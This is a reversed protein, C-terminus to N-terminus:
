LWYEKVIRKKEELSLNLKEAWDNFSYRKNYLYYEIMRIRGSEYYMVAAPGNTRHYENNIFFEEWMLSGNRYYSIVAPGNERHRRGNIYYNEQMIQGNDHYDTKAPGNPNHLRGSSNEWTVAYITNTGSYYVTSKTLDGIQEIKKNNLRYGNDFKEYKFMKGVFPDRESLSIMFEDSLPKDKEDMYQDSEHHIQYKRNNKKDVIIILDYSYLHFKNEKDDTKATCWRTNHGFYCASTKDKVHVILFENTNDLIDYDGKDGDKPFLLPIETVDTKYSDLVEELDEIKNINRHETNLLRKNFIQWYEKLAPRIRSPIDEFRNIDGKAYRLAIWTVYKNNQTPDADDMIQLLEEDSMKSFRSNEKDLRERIKGMYRNKLDQVNYEFLERYRM